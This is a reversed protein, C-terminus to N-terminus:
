KKNDKKTKKIIIFVVVAIIIIILIWIFICLGLPCPCFGCLWCKDTKSEPKNVTDTSPAETPTPENKVEMKESGFTLIESYDSWFEEQDYQTCDYRARLEIPTDKDVKGVAEVLNQLAYKLEGSSLEWDGQLQVWDSKGPIRTEVEITINGYHNYDAHFKTNAAVLEDPVVINFAIVPFGNFDETTMHFNNIKPAAIDGPKLVISKEGEKGVAAINSWDSSVKIDEEDTRITVLFRMRVYITHNEFDFKAYSGDDDKVITYCGEPLVDKWGDYNANEHDGYWTVDEPDSINGMWRFVWADNTRQAYNLFSTYAWDGLRPIYNEDYGETDWYKNYHWDTQNDVSWDMQPTVWLDSYGHSELEAVAADHKEPDGMRDLWASISESQSWALQCTNASDNGDLYTIAVHEPATLKFPMWYTAAKASSSNLFIGFMFVFSMLFIIAKKM